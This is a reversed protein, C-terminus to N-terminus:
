SPAARLILSIAIYVNEATRCAKTVARHLPTGDLDLSESFARFSSLVSPLPSLEAFFRLAAQRSSERGTPQPLEAELVKEIRPASVVSVANTYTTEAATETTTSTTLQTQTTSTFLVTRITSTESLGASVATDTTGTVATGTTESATQTTETTSATTQARAITFPSDSVSITKGSSDEATIRLIYEGESLASFVLKKSFFGKLQYSKAHPYVTVTQVPDDGSMSDYIAGTITRIVSQASVTGDVSFSEGLPLVGKPLVSDSINVSHNFFKYTYCINRDVITRIGSIKGCGSYQWIDCDASLDKGAPSSLGNNTNFYNAMWITHGNERLQDPDICENFFAYNAYVGASHGAQEIQSLASLLPPMFVSRPLHEQRTHSELDLFIPFEFSKGVLTSLLLKVDENFEATTAADTYLYAGLAIGAKRANTYNEEFRSDIESKGNSHTVICARLIAFKEGSKAVAAWDIDEQYKSVDIGPIEAGAASAYLSHYSCDAGLSVTVATVLALLVAAARSIIRHM